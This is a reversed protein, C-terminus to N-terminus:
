FTYSVLLYGRNLSSSLLIMKTIGTYSHEYRAEINFSKINTGVGISLGLDINQPGDIAKGETVRDMTYFHKEERSYNNEILILGISLGGNLFVFNNNLPLRYRLMSSLKIHSYGIRSFISTYLEENEYEIYSQESKYTTFLLENYLSIKGRNRTFQTNLFLGIAPNFSPPFSTNLLKQFYDPAASFFEFKTFSLGIVAGITSSMKESKKTYSQKTKTCSQYYKEFVNKLEALDYKLNDIDNKITKCNDLYVLIQGKFKENSRIISSRIDTSLNNTNMPNVVYTKYLLLLFGGNHFVYFHKKSNQDKLYYLSKKGLIISQLFVTDTKLIFDPENFHVNYSTNQNLKNEQSKEIQVTAGFYIEDAVKFYNIDKPHFHITESTETKKFDIERPNKDWNRYDIFGEMKEGNTTLVTAPLFNIQATAILSFAFLLLILTIKFSSKKM